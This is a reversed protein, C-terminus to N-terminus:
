VQWLMMNKLHFVEGVPIMEQFSIGTFLGLLSGGLISILSIHVFIPALRGLLGKYSYIYYEQHFAHYNTRNLFYIVSSPSIIIPTRYQWLTNNISIQKKFKWRRAHKLSPLQTSLTCAILSLCFIILLTIFFWNTYLQNLKFRQIIEWNIEILKMENIPYNKKYYDISEDQEIITGLISISSTLLLLFISFNLNSIKKFFNWVITKYKM